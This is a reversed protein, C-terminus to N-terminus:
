KAAELEQRLLNRVLHSFSMGRNFALRKAAKMLEPPLSVGQPKNKRHAPITKNAM